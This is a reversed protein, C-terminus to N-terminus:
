HIEPTKMQILEKYGDIYGSAMRQPTFDAARTRALSAMNDRYERNEILTNLVRKMEASDDPAIFVAAGDWNERLSSIDGLVLACGSLAAELVTLGFPEYYAPMVYISARAYWDALEVPSLRGLTCVGSCDVKDGDPARNEGAIYVPWDLQLSVAALAGLNKAEDWIRGASFIFPEKDTSSYLSADRGNPIVRCRPLKGYHEELCDLMAKTPAIVLDASHLGVSVARRYVDWCEPACEKNVSKWWSLVCSHGVVLVPSQWPFVAHAYGNLHILDPRFSQELDLLWEGSKAVDDWPDQMWELRYTSEFITLNPLKAADVAHEPALPAGMTALGVQINYNKLRRILELAYTWVGGITDATMLVRKPM